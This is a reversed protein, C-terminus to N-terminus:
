RRVNGVICNSDIVESPYINALEDPLLRALPARQHTQVFSYFGQVFTNHADIIDAAVTYLWDSEEEEDAADSLSM